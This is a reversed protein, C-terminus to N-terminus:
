VLWTDNISYICCTGAQPVISFLSSSGEEKILVISSFSAKNDEEAVPSQPSSV